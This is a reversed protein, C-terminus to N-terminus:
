PAATCCACRRPSRRATCTPSRRASPPASPRPRSPRPRAGRASPGSPSTPWSAARRTRRMWALSPPACRPTVYEDTTGEDRVALSEGVCVIAYLGGEVLAKVKRNVDENTEGFLERRESHGVISCACGIEKIMPVSIEGTYAGKPEWYVNQAGVAIKTKDFDLVTKAPKLDVYPPCIVIDVSEPWEKEYQNSIEQTLVVAEGVTNNMKWNGAMMPKRAM